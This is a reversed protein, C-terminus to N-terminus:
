QMVRLARSKLTSATLDSFNHFLSVVQLFLMIKYSTTLLLFSESSMFHQALILLFALHHCSLTAATLSICQEIYDAPDIFCFYTNRFNLYSEWKWYMCKTYKFGCSHYGSFTSSPLHTLSFLIPRIFHIFSGIKM